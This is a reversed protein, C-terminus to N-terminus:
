RKKQEVPHFNADMLGLGTLIVWQHGITKESLKFQEKAEDTTAGKIISRLYNPALMIPSIENYHLVLADKFQEKTIKM